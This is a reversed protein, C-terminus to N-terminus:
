RTRVVVARLGAGAGASFTFEAASGGPNTVLYFDGATRVVSGTLPEGGAEGSGVTLVGFDPLNITTYNYKESDTAIGKGSLYLTALFDAFTDYFNEGTIAEICPRGVCGNQVIIKYIGEGFRDGLYRLFLFIGGRQEIPADEHELSVLGPNRLYSRTRGANSDNRGVLDEAMHAMGEELWTKQAAGRGFNFLRYSYSILHELEHVMTQKNADTVFARTFFDLPPPLYIADPDSALVYFIEAENSTGEPVGPTGVEFLDTESFFGGIYEVGSWNPITKSLENIVGSVLVIVKGNGDIDSERGFHLTDSPFGQTDFFQGMEIYDSQTLNGNALTDVDNYVLCFDGEYRLEATVQEYSSPSSLLGTVTKLVNFQRFPPAQAPAGRAPRDRGPGRRVPRAGADLMAAAGERRRKEFRERATMTPKGENGDGTRRSTVAAQGSSVTYSQVQTYAASPNASHPVLLYEATPAPFPLRLPYASGTGGFVWVEGVGRIVTVDPGVGVVPQDPVSVRLPGTAADEPVVVRLSTAGGGIPVAPHLPNNFQVSNDRFPEAFHSGGITVTDGPVVTLQSVTSVVPVPPLEPDESCATWGALAAVAIVAATRELDEIWSTKM